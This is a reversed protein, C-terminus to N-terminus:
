FKFMDFQLIIFQIRYPIKSQRPSPIPNGFVLPSSGEILMMKWQWLLFFGGVFTTVFWRAGLWILPFKLHSLIQEGLSLVNCHWLWLWHLQWLVDSISMYFVTCMLTTAAILDICHRSNEAPSLIQGIRITSNSDGNWVFANYIRHDLSQIM